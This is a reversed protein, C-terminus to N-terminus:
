FFVGLPIKTWYLFNFLRSLILSLLYCSHTIQFFECLKSNELSRSNIAFSPQIQQTLQLGTLVGNKLNTNSFFRSENSNQNLHHSRKKILQLNDIWPIFLSGIYGQCGSCISFILMFCIFSFYLSTFERGGNIIRLELNRPQKLRM